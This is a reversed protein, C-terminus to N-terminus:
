NEICLNSLSQFLYQCWSQAEWMCMCAHGCVLLRTYVGCVCVCAVLSYTVRLNLLCFPFVVGSRKAMLISLVARGVREAQIKNSLSKIYEGTHALM